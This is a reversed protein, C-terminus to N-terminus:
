SSPWSMLAVFTLEGGDDMSLSPSALLEVTLPPASVSSLVWKCWTGFCGSVSPTLCPQFTWRAGTAAETLGIQCM